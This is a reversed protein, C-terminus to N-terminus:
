ATEGPKLIKPNDFRAAVSKAAQENTTEYVQRSNVIVRFTGAPQTAGGSSAARNKNGCNCGM